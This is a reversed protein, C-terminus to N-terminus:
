VWQQVGFESFEVQDLGFLSDHNAEDLTRPNNSNWVGPIKELARLREHVAHVCGRTDCLSCRLNVLWEPPEHTPHESFVALPQYVVQRM